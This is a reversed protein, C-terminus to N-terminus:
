PQTRPSSAQPASAGSPSTSPAPQTAGSTNVRLRTIASPDAPKLGLAAAKEGVREASGEYAIQGIADRNAELLEAQRAELAAVEDAMTNYRYGEWSNLLLLGPIALCLVATVIRKM